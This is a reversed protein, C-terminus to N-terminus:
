IEDDTTKNDTFPLLTKIKDKAKDIINKVGFMSASLVFSLLYQGVNDLNLSNNNILTGLMEIIPSLLFSFGALDLIDNISKGLQNLLTIIVQEIDKFASLVKKFLEYFGKNKIIDIIKKVWEENRQYTFGLVAVFLMAINYDSIHIDSNYIIEKVPQFFASIGAGFTFVGGLNVKIDNMTKQLASESQEILLESEKLSKRYEVILRKKM